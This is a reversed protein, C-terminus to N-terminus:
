RIYRQSICAELRVIRKKKDHLPLDSEMVKRLESRINAHNLSRYFEPEVLTEERKAGSLLSLCLAELSVGQERAQLELHFLLSDPIQLTLEKNM